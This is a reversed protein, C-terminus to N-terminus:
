RDLWGEGTRKQAFRVTALHDVYLRFSMPRPAAQSNALAADLFSENRWQTM